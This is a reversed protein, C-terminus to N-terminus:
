LLQPLSAGRAAGCPPHAATSYLAGQHRLLDPTAREMAQRGDLTGRGVGHRPLRHQVCHPASPRIRGAGQANEWPQFPRIRWTTRTCVTNHGPAATCDSRGRGVSSCVSSSSRPVDYQAARPRGVSGICGHLVCPEHPVIVASALAAGRCRAQRRPAPRHLYRSADPNGGCPRQHEVAQM